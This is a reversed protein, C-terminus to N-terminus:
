FEKEFKIKKDKEQLIADEEKLYKEKFEFFRRV